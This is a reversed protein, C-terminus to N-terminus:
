RAALVTFRAPMHHRVQPPLVTRVVVAVDEMFQRFFLVVAQTDLFLEDFPVNVWTPEEYRSLHSRLRGALIVMSPLFQFMNWFAPAEQRSIPVDHAGLLRLLDAFPLKLRGQPTRYVNEYPM